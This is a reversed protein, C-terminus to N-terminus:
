AAIRPDELPSFHRILACDALGDMALEKLIEM